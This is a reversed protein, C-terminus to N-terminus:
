GRLANGIREALQGNKPRHPSQAKNDAVGRAYVRGGRVQPEFPPTTWADVPDPPQVDYHGYLLVTPQGPAGDWRALVMPHGATPVARADLGLETLMRILLDAVEQIGVNHASISPHRVYDLLRDVYIARQSDIHNFVAALDTPM